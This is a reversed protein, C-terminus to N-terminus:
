VTTGYPIKAITTYKTYRVLRACKQCQITKRTTSYVSCLSRMEARSVVLICLLQEESKVEINVAIFRHRKALPKHRAATIISTTPWSLLRGCLKHSYAHYKLSIVVLLEQEETRCTGIGVAPIPLSASTPKAKSYQLPCKM